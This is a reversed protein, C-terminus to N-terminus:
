RNREMKKECINIIDNYSSVLKHKDRESLEKYRDDENVNRMLDLIVARANAWTHFKADKVKLLM